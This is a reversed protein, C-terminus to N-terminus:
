WALKQLTTTMGHAECACPGWNSGPRFCVLYTASGPQKSIRTCSRSHFPLWNKYVTLKHRGIRTACDVQGEIGQMEVRKRSRLCFFKRMIKLRNQRLRGYFSNRALKIKCLRHLLNRWRLVEVDPFSNAMASCIEGHVNGYHLVRLIGLEIRPPFLPNISFNQNCIERSRVCAPMFKRM